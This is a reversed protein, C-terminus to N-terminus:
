NKRQSLTDPEPRLPRARRRFVERMEKGYVFASVCRDIRGTVRRARIGPYVVPRALPNRGCSRAVLSTIHLARRLFKAESQFGAIQMVARVDTRRFVVIQDCSHREIKEGRETQALMM